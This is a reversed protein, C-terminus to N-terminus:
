NDMQQYFNLLEESEENAKIDNKIGNLAESEPLLNLSQFAALRIYENQNNKAIDKLVPISTSVVTDPAESIFLGYYQVLYFLDETEAGELRELFWNNHEYLKDTVFYDALALVIHTNLSDKYGSLVRPKNPDSTLSFALIAAGKVTYSPDDLAEKAVLKHKDANISALVTIASARVQSKPDSQALGILRGEVDNLFEGDYEDFYDVALERLGWVPDKLVSLFVDSIADYDDRNEFGIEALKELANYRALLKGGNYYQFILEDVTKPHSVEALLQQETDFLVLQVSDEIEFEFKEYSANIEVPYEWAKEEDVWIGLVIPLNFVPTQSFDQVQRVEVTLVNGKQFHDVQLKPHGSALFWQNFFWNLDEGTVEEFAMRLDHIEATAYANSRLYLELSKFFAKDGVYNRLMHLVLGGKDYSHHDFMDEKDEYTFRILDAQKEKAEELYTESSEWQHYDAEEVGYKHEYWLYEGYTAFAENLPLNSWSECTVLNGFWHHFLEHAIIDDWHYDLLDRDTVLLDEMFVSATTNEMAGSVFDRVIVQSYKPWPYPYNLLKSFYGLMEPTNGFIDRAYDAFEHEIYYNVEIGEGGPVEWQDEIKEFSGIAMMALYPAHPQDLKWYDTRTEDDNMLSYILSGNSLTTFKNDVTIFLEQTAKENPSDITPFWASNAETQGQTWLQQPKGKDSGTPNIFYLGRDSKIAASGKGQLEGPKAVYVIEVFFHEDPGYEKELQITIQKGDYTYKLPKKNHGEVLSVAGIDFGRADLVLEDQPYFYPKLELTATGALQQQAWDPRVELKTHVLDHVRDNSGRYTVVDSYIIEAVSDVETSVATQLSDVTTGPGVDNVTTQEVVKCAGLGLAIALLFLINNKMLMSLLEYYNPIIM